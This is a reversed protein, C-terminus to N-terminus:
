TVSVANLKTKDRESNLTNRNTGANELKELQGLKGINQLSDNPMMKELKGLTGVDCCIPVWISKAFHQVVQFIIGM